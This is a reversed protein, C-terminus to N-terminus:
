ENFLGDQLSVAWCITKQEYIAEIEIQDRGKNRYDKQELYGLHEIQEELDKIKKLRDEEIKDFDDTIKKASKSEEKITELFAQTYGKTKIFEGAAFSMNAFDLYKMRELGIRRMTEVM